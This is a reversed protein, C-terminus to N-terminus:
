WTEFYRVSFLFSPVELRRSPPPLADLGHWAPAVVMLGVGNGDSGVADTRDANADVKRRSGRWPFFHRSDFFEKCTVEQM